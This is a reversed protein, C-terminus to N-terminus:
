TEENQRRWDGHGIVRVDAPVEVLLYVWADGWLTSVAQRTYVVPYEEYRDLRALLTADIEYVEGTISSTGQAIVAPYEGLDFMTFRPETVHEGLFRADELLGAAAEGRRLSGYVFVRLAEAAKQV